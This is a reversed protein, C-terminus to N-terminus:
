SAPRIPLNLTATGTIHDGLDDVARFEVEVVGLGDRESTATVTGTYTLTFGPFV